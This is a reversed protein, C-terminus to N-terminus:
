DSAENPYMSLKAIAASELWLSFSIGERRAAAEAKLKVEPDFTINYRKRPHDGLWRRGPGKQPEQM